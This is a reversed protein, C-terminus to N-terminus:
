YSTRVHNYMNAAGMLLTGVNYSWQHLDADACNNEVRVNDYVKYDKTLIPSQELWDWAKNAWDAYTENHTYRALRSALQFFGGNSITNKLNYGNNGLFIQWRLGGGCTAADWRATQLNFVAQALALWSPQDSPPDPYKLEAASMAAFAWFLQDDNGETKTQNRPMYDRAEGVQFLMAETILDNYSSDGTYHSYEVMQGMLAGAEWWFYPEM